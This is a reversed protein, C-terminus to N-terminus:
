KIATLIVTCQMPVNGYHWIIMKKQIIAPVHCNESSFTHNNKKTKKARFCLKHTSKPDAKSSIILEGSGFGSAWDFGIRKQLRRPFPSRFNIRPM